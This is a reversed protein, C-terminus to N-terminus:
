DVPLHRLMAPPLIYVGEPPYVKCYFEAICSARNGSGPTAPSCQVRRHRLSAWALAPDGQLMPTTEVANQVPSEQPFDYLAKDWGQLRLSVPRICREPLEFELIGQANVTAETIEACLDELLPPPADGQMLVEDYWARLRLRLLADIDESQELELNEGSDTSPIGMQLRMMELLAAETYYEYGPM